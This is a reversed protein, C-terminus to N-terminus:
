WWDGGGRGGVVAGEGEIVEDRRTNLKTSTGRDGAGSKKEKPLWPLQDEM